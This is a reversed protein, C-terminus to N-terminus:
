GENKVLSSKQGSRGVTGQSRGSDAVKPRLFVMLELELSIKDKKKFAWGWPHRLIPTKRLTDM